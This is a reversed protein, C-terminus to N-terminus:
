FLLQGSVSFWFNDRGNKGEFRRFGLRSNVILGTVVDKIEVISDTSVLLTPRVALTM